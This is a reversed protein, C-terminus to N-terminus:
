ELDNSSVRFVGKIVGPNSVCIQIHTKERFGSTPYIPAGEVFVGRVTDFEAARGGASDCSSASIM